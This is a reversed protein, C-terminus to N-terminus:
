LFKSRTCLSETNTIFREEKGTREAPIQREGRVSATAQYSDSGSRNSGTPGKNEGM